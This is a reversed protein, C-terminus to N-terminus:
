TKIVYNIMFLGWLEEELLIVVTSIYNFSVANHLRRYHVVLQRFSVGYLPGVVTTKLQLLANKVSVVHYKPHLAIHDQFDVSTEPSCLM